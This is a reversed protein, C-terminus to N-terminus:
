CREVRTYVGSWGLSVTMLPTAPIPITSSSPTDEISRGRSGTAGRTSRAERSNSRSIDKVTDTRGRRYEAPNYFMGPDLKWGARELRARAPGTPPPLKLSSFPLGLECRTLYFIDQFGIFAYQWVDADWKCGVKGGQRARM